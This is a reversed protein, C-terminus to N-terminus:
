IRRLEGKSEGGISSMLQLGYVVSVLTAALVIVATLAMRVALPVCGLCADCRAVRIGAYWWPELVADAM